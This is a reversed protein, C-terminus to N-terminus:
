KETALDTMSGKHTKGATIWWSPHTLSKAWLRTKPSRSAASCESRLHSQVQWSFPLLRSIVKGSINSPRGSKQIPQWARHVALLPYITAEIHSLGLEGRELVGTSRVVAIHWVMGEADKSLNIVMHGLFVGWGGDPSRLCGPPYEALVLFALHIHQVRHPKFETM